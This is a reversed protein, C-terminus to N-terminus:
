KCTLQAPDPGRRRRAIFTIPDMTQPKNIATSQLMSFQV